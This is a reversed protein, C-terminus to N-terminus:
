KTAKERSSHDTIPAQSHLHCRCMFAPHDQRCLWMAGSNHRACQPHPAPAQRCEALDAPSIFPVIWDSFYCARWIGGRQLMKFESSEKKRQQLFRKFRSCHQFATSSTVQIQSGPGHDNMSPQPHTTLLQIQM